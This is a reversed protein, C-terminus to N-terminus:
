EDNTNEKGAPKNEGYKDVLRKLLVEPAYVYGKKYREGLLNILVDLKIQKM